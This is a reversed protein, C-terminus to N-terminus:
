IFFLIKLLHVPELLLRCVCLRDRLPLPLRIHFLLFRDFLPSGAEGPCLLLSSLLLPVATHHDARDCRQDNEENNRASDNKHPRIDQPFAAGPSCFVSLPFCPDFLFFRFEGRDAFFYPLRILEGKCVIIVPGNRKKLTERVIVPIRIKDIRDCSVRRHPIGVCKGADVCPHCSDIFEVLDGLLHIVSAPDQHAHPVHDGLFRILVAIDSKLLVFAKKEGLIFLGEDEGDIVPAVIMGIISFAISVFSDDILVSLDFTLVCIRGSINRDSVIIDNRSEICKKFCVRVPGILPRAPQDGHGSIVTDEAIPRVRGIQCSLPQLRVLSSEEIRVRIEVPFFVDCVRCSDRFRDLCAAPFEGAMGPTVQADGSFGDLRERCILFLPLVRDGIDCTRCIRDNKGM